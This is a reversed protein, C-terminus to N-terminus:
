HHFQGQVLGEPPRVRQNDVEQGDVILVLVTLVSQCLAM